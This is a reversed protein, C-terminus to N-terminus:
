IMSQPEVEQINQIPLNKLVLKINNIGRSGVTIGIKDGPKIRKELDSKIFHHHIYESLNDIKTKKFNQKIKRVKIDEIM